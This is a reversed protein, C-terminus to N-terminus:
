LAQNQLAEAQIHFKRVPAKQILFGDRIRRLSDTMEFRESMIRLHMQQQFRTLGAAAYLKRCVTIFIRQIFVPLPQDQRMQLFLCVQADQGTRRDRIKLYRKKRSTGM